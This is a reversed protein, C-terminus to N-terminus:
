KIKIEEMISNLEYIFNAINCCFKEKKDPNLTDLEKQNIDNGDVKTHITYKDNIVEANPIQLTVKSDM